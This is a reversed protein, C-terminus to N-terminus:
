PGAPRLPKQVRFVLETAFHLREFPWSPELVQEVFHREYHALMGKNQGGLSQIPFSVMIVPANIQALLRRGIAPDAQELCPITKLLLAVDVPEPPCHQLLDCVQAQGQVGLCGWCCNLFNAQDQYIDCAQYTAGPPLGMWPLCLPNLGCALDLLSHIPPLGAFLTAYFNDLIPLRERTSTHQAMIQRCVQRLQSDDGAAQVAQVWEAFAPRGVQYAGAVQHLKNKTAKIAEKLNRRKALEQAGLSRVLDPAVQQYKPSTLVVAVLEALRDALAETGRRSM